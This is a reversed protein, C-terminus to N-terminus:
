EVSLTRVVNFHFPGKKTNKWLGGRGHDRGRKKVGSSKGGQTKEDSNGRPKFDKVVTNKGSAFPAKVQKSAGQPLGLDIHQPRQSSNKKGM